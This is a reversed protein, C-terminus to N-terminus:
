LDLYIIARWSTGDHDISAQHHTVAKIERVVQHRDPDLPEGSVRGTIRNEAFHFIEIKAPVHEKDAMLFLLENLWNVLTEESSNGEASIEETHLPEATANSFLLLRLGLGSQEALGEREDAIAEIGIDATHELLHFRNM